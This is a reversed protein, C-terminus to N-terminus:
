IVKTSEAALGIACTDVCPFPWLLAGVDVACSDTFVVCSSKPFTVAFEEAIRVNVSVDVPVDDAVTSRAEIVPAPKEIWPLLRGTVSVGFWDTVSCTINLGVETPTAVPFSVMFLLAKAPPVVKIPNVPAPVAGSAGCSVALAALRLKPLTVVFVAVVCAKVKVEVPVEGTVTFEAAIVPAPKEMTPPLRGAVRFGVWDIVSCTRNLGVVVPEALPWNVILLLEEVPLVVTTVKLPVLVPAGLGCNVTLAPLRLKPLTVTFVDVVWDNVSVEVPVDGTVMFEAAIEPDPNVIM